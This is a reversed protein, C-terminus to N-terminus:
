GVTMELQLDAALGSTRAPIMSRKTARLPRKRLLRLKKLWLRLSQTDPSQSRSYLNQALEPSPILCSPILSEAVSVKRGLYAGSEIRKRTKWGELASECEMKANYQM